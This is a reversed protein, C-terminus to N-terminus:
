VRGVISVNRLESREKNSEDTELWRIQIVVFPGAGCNFSSPDNTMCIMGDVNPDAAQGGLVAKLRTKWESLDQGQISSPAPTEGFSVQYAGARALVANARMRDLMDYALGTAQSRMLAGQNVKLAAGQLGAHGLLGFSLVVLAILVELLTAGCM